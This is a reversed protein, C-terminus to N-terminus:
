AKWIGVIERLLLPVLLVNLPLDEVIGFSVSSELIGLPIFGIVIHDKVRLVLLVVDIHSPILAQYSLPLLKPRGRIFQLRRRQAVVDEQKVNVSDASRRHM